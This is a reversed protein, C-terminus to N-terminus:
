NSGWPIHHGGGSQFSSLTEGHEVLSHGDNLLLNLLFSSDEIDLHLDARETYNICISINAPDFPITIQSM